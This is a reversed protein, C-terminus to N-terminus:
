THSREALMADAMRYAAKATRAESGDLGGLCPAAATAIMGVLAKAAFYDRLSMGNFQNDVVGGSIPFAPEDYPRESM